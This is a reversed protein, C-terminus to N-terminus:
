DGPHQAYSRPRLDAWLDNHATAQKSRAQTPDIDVALVGEEEALRGLVNGGPDVVQSQGIFRLAHGGREESGVRDCTAAFVLNELCRIRMAEPCWPLVLNSPHLIVDAGRFALTRAAEPFRWDFCIMLGLRAGGYEVVPFPLDGGQFWLTERDFLHIKRYHALVGRPGVLVASNYFHDGAREPWGAAIACGRARAWESLTSVITGDLPEAMRELQERESFLYGSSFLEPLVWLDARETDLLARARQLNHQPQDFRCDMQAVAIRM